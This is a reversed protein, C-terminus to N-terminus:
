SRSFLKPEADEAKGSPDEGGRLKAKLEDRKARAEALTVDPYPGFSITQQKGVIRYAM